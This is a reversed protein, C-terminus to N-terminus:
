AGLRDTAFTDANYVYLVLQNSEAVFLYCPTTEDTLKGLEGCRFAIGHPSKLGELITVTGDSVSDNNTDPFAVVKGESTLSAVLVGKPDRTLVRAGPAEASFVTASFGSPLTFASAPPAETQEVQKVIPALLTAIEWRYMYALAGLLLIGLGWWYWTKM